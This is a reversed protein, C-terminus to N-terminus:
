LRSGGGRLVLTLPTEGWASGGVGAAALRSAEPATLGVVLGTAGAVPGLAVSRSAAGSGDVALVLVDGAVTEGRPGLLDVRDGPRVMALAGVDALAVHAAVQGPPQGALLGPGTLRRQTVPEGAGVPGALVRGAVRAPDGEPAAPALGRPLLAVGVDGSAVRHGAPLDRAAVVVAVLPGGPPTRAAAVTVLIAAGALLSALVRRAVLRRWRSRRGQGLLPGGARSLAARVARAGSM